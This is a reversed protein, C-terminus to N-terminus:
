EEKVGRHMPCKRLMDIIRANRHRLKLTESQMSLRYPLIGSENSKNKKKKKSTQNERQLFSHPLSLLHSIFLLSFFLSITSQKMLFDEFFWLLNILPFFSTFERERGILCFSKLGHNKKRIVVWPKRWLSM